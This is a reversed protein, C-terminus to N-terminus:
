PPYPPLWPIEGDTWSTCHAPHVACSPQPFRHWQLPRSGTRTVINIIGSMANGYEANFTGSIVQLEQISENEVQLAQSRTFDDTISIGNVMYSIESSRGGRIHIAGGADRVVGAQLNLLDGLDQVPIKQITEQQVRSEVSTLDKRIVPEEAVVVVEEGKITEPKLKFDVRTTLDTQVKVNQVTMKQYGIYEVVVNYTGPPVRLIVYTGDVDTSAGLTTGELYVNAGPLPDGTEADVVVGVIKGYSQAMSKAPFGLFIWTAVILLLLTKQM